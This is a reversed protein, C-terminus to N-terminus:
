QMGGKAPKQGYYRFVQVRANYSDVVFVRDDRDIHLGAPLRFEGFGSGKQGFYYLLQGERNFVQVMGTAGEVVYLHGESDIAVGKPRFMAGIADGIQGVAYQFQGSRDIAQVRFNMADVVLLSQGDIRLETPYNFEVERQGTQGITKLISGQLDLVFVKNRLTDTVYIRQAASDVAIGTPRKFYGEGGKLSGIAHQYKGGADFVFIKGSESDTVYINDKDDVAVCQPALMADKNKDRREIFKYKQQAFDFIHIGQAGPDTVIARGRSDTVISYPRVLFHLDPAGVIADFVKTFFGRKPKVDRDASFSREFTLKRGGELLLEPVRVETTTKRKTRIAAWGPNVLLLVGVVVASVLRLRSRRKERLLLQVM